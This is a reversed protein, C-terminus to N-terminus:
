SGAKRMGKVFGRSARIKKYLQDPTWVFPNRIGLARKAFGVCSLFQPAAARPANGRVGMNVFKWGQRKMRQLERMGVPILRVGDGGIQVLVNQLVGDARMTFIVCCHRFNRCFIRAWFKNTKHIFAIIINNNM